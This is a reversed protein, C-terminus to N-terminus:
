GTQRSSAILAVNRDFVHRGEDFWGTVMKRTFDRSCAIVDSPQGAESLKRAYDAQL